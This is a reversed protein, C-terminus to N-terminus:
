MHILCSGEYLCRNRSVTKHREQKWSRTSGELVRCMEFIHMLCLVRLTAASSSCTLLIHVEILLMSISKLLLINCCGLLMFVLKSTLKFNKILSCEYCVYIQLCVTSSEANNLVTWWRHSKKKKFSFVTNFQFTVTCRQRKAFFVRSSLFIVCACWSTRLVLKKVPVEPGGGFDPWRRWGGRRPVLLRVFEVKVQECLCTHEM